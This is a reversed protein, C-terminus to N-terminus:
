EESEEETQQIALEAAEQHLATIAASLQPDKGAELDDLTLDIDYHPSIGIENISHFNPSRWEAVTIKLSSGGVYRIIEQVTGKGYSTKGVLVANNEENLVLAMIESASASEENILIVIPHGAWEGKGQSMHFAAHNEEYIVYVLPHGYPIFHGLMSELSDLYGGPNDRLDFIFGEFNPNADILPQITQTFDIFSLSDFLNIDVYIANDIMKGSLYGVDVVARIITIDTLEIENRRQVTITVSTDIEGRILNTIDEITNETVDVGDIAMIRDNIHLGSNEAPGGSIFSHIVIQGEDNETLQAGIGVLEGELYNTFGLTEDPPMFHSYQDNLSNIMGEMASYILENEDLLDRDYYSTHLRNWVDLFIDLHPIDYTIEEGFLQEELEAFDNVLQSGYLFVDMRYLLETAEGRTLKKLPRFYEPNEPDLPSILDYIEGYYVAPAYWADFRVDRYNLVWEEEHMLRPVPIGMLNLIMQLGEVRTINESPNFESKNPILGIEYARQIYPAFWSDPPVDNYPYSRNEITSPDIKYDALLMKLFEARTVAQGPLFNGNEYGQIVDKEQLYQITDAYRDDIIDSFDARSLPILFLQSLLLATLLYKM